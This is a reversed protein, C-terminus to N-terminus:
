VTAQQKRRRAVIGLLGLGTMMMAYTSPEPIPVPTIAYTGRDMYSVGSSRYNWDNSNGFSIDGFLSRSGTATYQICGSDLCKVLRNVQPNYFGQLMHPPSFLVVLEVALQQIKYNGGTLQSGLAFTAEGSSILPDCHQQSTCFSASLAVTYVGGTPASNVNYVGTLGTVPFPPFHNWDNNNGFSIDGFPSRSGTATYQTCGSDICKVLRNVQPNYFGQLMDAPNWHPGVIRIRFDEILFNGDALQNGLAFEAGAHSFSSGSFSVTYRDGIMPAAHAFLPCCAIVLWAVSSVLTLSSASRKM